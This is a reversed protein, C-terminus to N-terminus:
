FDAQLIHIFNVGATWKVLLKTEICLLACHITIPSFLQQEKKGVNVGFNGVSTLIITLAAKTSFILAKKACPLQYM